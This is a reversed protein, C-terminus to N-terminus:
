QNYTQALYKEADKRVLKEDKKTFKIEGEREIGIRICDICGEIFQQKEKELFDKANIVALTQVSMADNWQKKDAGKAAKWKKYYEQNTKELREILETIVTKAM